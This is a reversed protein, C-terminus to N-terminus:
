YEAQLDARVNRAHQALQKEYASQLKQAAEKLRTEYQRKLHLVQATTLEPPDDAVPEIQGRLVAGGAPAVAPPIDVRERAATPPASSSLEGQQLVQFRTAYTQELDVTKQSLQDQYHEITEALEAEYERRLTETTERLRLEYSQELETLHRQSEKLAATQRRLRGQVLYYGLLFGLLFAILFTLIIGQLTFTM